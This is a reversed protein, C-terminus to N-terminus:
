FSKPQRSDLSLPIGMPPKRFNYNKVEYFRKQLANIWWNQKEDYTFAFFAVMIAFAYVRHQLAKAGLM